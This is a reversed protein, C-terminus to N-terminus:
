IKFNRIIHQVVRKEVLLNDAIVWLLEDTEELDGSIFGATIDRLYRNNFFQVDMINLLLSLKWALFHKNLRKFSDLHTFRLNLVWNRGRVTVFGLTSVPRLPTTAIGLDLSIGGMTTLTLLTYVKNKLATFTYVLKWTQKSYAALLRLIRVEVSASGVEIEEKPATFIYFEVGIIGFSASLDLKHKPTESGGNLALPNLSFTHPFNERGGSWFSYRKLHFEFMSWATVLSIIFDIGSLSSSM